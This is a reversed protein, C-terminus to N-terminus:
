EFVVGEEIEIDDPDTNKIAPTLVKEIYISPDEKRMEMRCAGKFPCYNCHAGLNKDKELSLNDLIKDIKSGLMYTWMEIQTPTLPITHRSFLKDLPTNALNDVKKIGTYIQNITATNIPYGQGVAMCVYQGLQADFVVADATWMNVASTKHDWPGITHELLDEVLADLIGDLYVERGKPTVITVQFREEIKHFIYRKLDEKGYRGIYRIMMTNAWIVLMQQEFSPFEKTYLQTFSENPHVHDKHWLELFRHSIKGRMLAESSTSELRLGHMYHYHARQECFHYAKLKSPSYRLHEPIEALVVDSDV